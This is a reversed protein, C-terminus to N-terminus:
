LQFVKRQANCSNDKAMIHGMASEALFYCQETSRQWVKLCNQKRGRAEVQPLEQKRLKDLGLELYQRTNEIFTSYVKKFFQEGFL